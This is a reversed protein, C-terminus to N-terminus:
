GLALGLQLPVVLLCGLLWARRGRGARGWRLYEPLHKHIKPRLTRAGVERKASAVWVPVVNHADVEHFPVSGLKKSVQTRAPAPFPLTAFRKRM